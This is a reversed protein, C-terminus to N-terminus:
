VAVIEALAVRGLVSVQENLLRRGTETLREAVSLTDLGQEVLQSLALGLQQLVGDHLSGPSRALSTPQPSVRGEHAGSALDLVSSKGIGSDGTLLLVPGAHRAVRDALQKRGFIMSCNDVRPRRKDDARPLSDSWLCRYLQGQDSLTKSPVR